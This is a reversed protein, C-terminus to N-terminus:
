AFAGPSLFVACGPETRKAQAGAFIHVHSYICYNTFKSPQPVLYCAFRILFLESNQENGNNMSTYTLVYLQHCLRNLLKHRRDGRNSAM